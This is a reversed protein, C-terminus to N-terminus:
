YAALTLANSAEDLPKMIAWMALDKWPLRNVLRMMATQMKIQRTSGAVMQAANSAGLAVNVDVYERMPLDGFLEIQGLQTGSCPRSQRARM